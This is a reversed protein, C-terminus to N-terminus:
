PAVGLDLRARAPWQVRWLLAQKRETEGTSVQKGTVPDTRVWWIKGRKFLGDRQVM